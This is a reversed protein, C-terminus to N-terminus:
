LHFIHFGGLSTAGGKRSNQKTIIAILEAEPTRM